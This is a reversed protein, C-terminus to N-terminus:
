PVDPEEEEMPLFQPVFVENIEVPEPDDEFNVQSATFGINATELEFIPCFSNMSIIFAKNFGYFYGYPQDTLDSHEQNNADTWEVEDVKGVIYPKENLSGFYVMNIVWPRGIKLIQVESSMASFVSSNPM